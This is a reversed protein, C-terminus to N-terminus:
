IVTGVQPIVDCCSHKGYRMERALHNIVFTHNSTDNNVFPEAIDTLLSIPEIPYVLQATLALGRWYTCGKM